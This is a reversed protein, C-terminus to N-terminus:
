GGPWAGRQVAAAGGAGPHQAHFAGARAYGPCLLGPTEAPGGRGAPLQVRKSTGALKKAIQNTTILLITGIISNFLGVATSLGYDSQVLGMRYVYTNIVDAFNYNAPSYMLLIKDAGVSFVSGMQMILMMIIMPLIGPITVHICQLWKGAGDIAAAEYLEQDIASLASIYIISGYGLGQWMNQLVYILWFNTGQNLLNQPESGTISAVFTSIAGGAETFDVVIGCAVVASVFYPMYSITQVTKKFYKNKIENLILAFIIPAPFNVVRNLVGIALTNRILRGVYPGSFFTEFNQLGVWQSGFFGKVPSYREFAMLLGVLPLFSFIVFFALILTLCVYLVKNRKIDVWLNHPLARVGGGEIYGSSDLTTTTYSRKPKKKAM